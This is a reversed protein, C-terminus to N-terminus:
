RKFTAIDSQAHSDKEELDKIKQEMDSKSVHLAENKSIISRSHDTKVKALEDKLALESDRSRKLEAYLRLEERDLQLRRTVDVSPIRERVNSFAVGMGPIMSRCTETHEELIEKQKAMEARYALSAAEIAHQSQAM